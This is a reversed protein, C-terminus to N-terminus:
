AKHLIYPEDSAVYQISSTDEVAYVICYLVGKDRSHLSSFLNLEFNLLETIIKPLTVHNGFFDFTNNESFRLQATIDHNEMAAMLAPPVDKLIATCIEEDPTFTNHVVGDMAEAYRIVMRDEVASLELTKFTLPRSFQKAIKQSCETLYMISAIREFLSEYASSHGVGLSVESNQVHLKVCIKLNKSKSIFKHAKALRNYHKLDTIKHNLWFDVNFTYTFNTVASDMLYEYTFSFIGDFAQGEISHKKAGRYMSANITELEFESNDSIFYITAQHIKPQQSITMVGGEREGNLAEFLKSGKFQFDSTPISFSKGNELMTQWASHASDAADDNFVMSIIPTHGEHAHIESVMSDSTATVKVYFRGDLSNLFSEYSAVSERIKPKHPNAGIMLSQTTQIVAERLSNQLEFPTISKQGIMSMSRVEAKHKWEHLLSVPYRGEDHDIIISCSGCLWIGNHYSKREEKNQNKDYRAAGPGPAAACIHAAIGNGAYNNRLINAGITHNLCNPNSCVGAAMHQLLLRTPKDFDHRPHNKIVSGDPLTLFEEIVKKAM